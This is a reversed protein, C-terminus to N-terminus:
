PAPRILTEFPPFGHLARLETTFHWAQMSQGETHSQQLLQVALEQDGLAGVIAARWYTHEGFLWKRQLTGLSDAIARARDRNGRAIEALGLM